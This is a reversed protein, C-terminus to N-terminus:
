LTSVFIGVCVIFKGKNRVSVNTPSKSPSPSMSPLSRVMKVDPLVQVLKCSNAATNPFVIYDEVEFKNICLTKIWLIGMTCGILSLTRNSRKWWCGNGSSLAIFAQGPFIEWLSPGWLGHATRLFSWSAIPHPAQLLIFKM